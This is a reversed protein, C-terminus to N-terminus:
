RGGKVLRYTQFSEKHPDLLMIKAPRKSGENRVSVFTDKLAFTPIHHLTKGTRRGSALKRKVKDRAGSQKSYHIELFDTLLYDLISVKKM